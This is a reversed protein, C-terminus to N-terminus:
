AIYRDGAHDWPRQSMKRSDSPVCYGCGEQSQGVLDSVLYM